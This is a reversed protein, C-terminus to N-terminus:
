PVFVYLLNTSFSFPVKQAMQFLARFQPEEFSVMQKNSLFKVYTPIRAKITLGASLIHQEILDVDYVRQHGLIVDAESLANESSLIGICTGFLRHFSNANPVTIIISGDDKVWRRMRQLVGVPDTLHELVNTAVVTEFLISPDFEEFSSCYTTISDGYRENASELLADSLDVIYSHGFRNVVKETYEDAGFGMELVKPGKILPMILEALLAICKKDVVFSPDTGQYSPAITNLREANILPLATTPSVEDM